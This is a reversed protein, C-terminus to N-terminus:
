KNKAYVSEFWSDPQPLPRRQTQWIHIGTSTQECLQIEEKREGDDLVVPIGQQAINETPLANELLLFSGRSKGGTAAYNEMAAVYLKQTLLLDWTIWADRLQWVSSIQILNPYNELIKDYSDLLEQMGSKRRIIGACDDMKIQYEKRLSEAPIANEKEKLMAHSIDIVQKLEPEAMRMFDAQSLPEQTYHKAIYQAARLSGVQTSNLATGGPRYVGFNGSVEGVAFFHKINTQWWKDVELGGNNHQASVSIELPETALDINHNLFLDYAPKNMAVLRNLPTQGLARSKELYTYAETPLLASNFIGNEEAQTFNERFDMYVKRGRVVKEYYVAYDIISSGGATLKKPDFPWQYGKLFVAGLMQEPTAFYEALFEKKDNGKQDTSFYRPLVQQYSGSLNWRFKVSAIGYQWETLNACHAGAKIAAGHGGTQSIPYVSNHYIGSPGGTAYIVNSCNICVFSVGASNTQLGLLGYVQTEGEVQRTLIQLIRTHDLIPIEKQKVANELKETMHKSTLPGSSTARQMPDHDTKYGVYQGYEDQPFPVGLEVLKFFCRTSLAAEVLVNDGHVSQGDYLTQAMKFISDQDNGALSLKYYTQKDSGTNRSTGMLQGETVILINKQGLSYLSDAANYAACGSGVVVTNCSYYTPEQQLTPQATQKICVNENQAFTEKRM